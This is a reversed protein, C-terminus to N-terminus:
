VLIGLGYSAKYNYFTKGTQRAIERVAQRVAVFYQTDHFLTCKSHQAAWLGCRLTDAYTHVIDVHILDYMGHDAQIFDRYDSKVLQINDYPALRAKTEAFIDKTSRTHIDGTFTDVGTVSAFYSSLAVTSFGHEVGFELCRDTGLEFREIMDALIEEIGRWASVTQLSRSPTERRRPRYPLIPIRPKRLGEFVSQWYAQEVTLKM